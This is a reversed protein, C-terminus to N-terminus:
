WSDKKRMWLDDQRTRLPAIVGTPMPRARSRAALSRRAPARLGDRRTSTRGAFAGPPAGPGRCTRPARSLLRTTGTGSQRAHM